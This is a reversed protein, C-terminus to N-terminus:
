GTIFDEEDLQRKSYGVENNSDYTVDTACGCSRCYYEEDGGMDEGTNLDVWTLHEVEPSNCSNCKYM